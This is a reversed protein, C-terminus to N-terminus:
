PPLFSVFFIDGKKKKMNPLFEMFKMFLLLHEWAGMTLSKFNFNEWWLSSYTNTQVRTIEKVGLLESKPFIDVSKVKPYEELVVKHCETEMQVLMRQFKHANEVLYGCQVDLKDFSVQNSM